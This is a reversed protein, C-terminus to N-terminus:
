AVEVEATARTRREVYPRVPVWAHVCANIVRVIVVRGYEDVGVAVRYMLGLHVRLHREGKCVREDVNRCWTEYPHVQQGDVEGKAGLFFRM